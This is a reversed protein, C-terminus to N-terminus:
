LSLDWRLIGPYVRAAQVSLSTYPVAVKTFCWAKHLAIATHGSFESSSHVAVFTSPTVMMLTYLGGETLISV